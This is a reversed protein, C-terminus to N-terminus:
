EDAKKKKIFSCYINGVYKYNNKMGSGSQKKIDAHKRVDHHSDADNKEPFFKM